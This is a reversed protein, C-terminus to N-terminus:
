PWLLWGRGFILGAIWALGTFAILWLSNAGVFLRGIGLGAFGFLWPALSAAMVGGRESAATPKPDGQHWPDTRHPCSEKHTVRGYKEVTWELSGCYPCSAATPTVSGLGESDVM